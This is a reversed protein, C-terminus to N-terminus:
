LLQFSWKAMRSPFIAEAVRIWVAHGFSMLKLASGKSLAQCSDSIYVRQIASFMHSKTGAWAKVRCHSSDKLSNGGRPPVVSPM